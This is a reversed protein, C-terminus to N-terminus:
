WLNTLDDDLVVAGDAILAQNGSAKIGTTLIRKGQASAFRAAHMAGGDTASEVVIVAESLGTILRNRAVLGPAGPAADPAVECVLAGNRALIADAKRRNEPPYPNLIGNGLVAITVGDQVALAGMHAASDIGRALGSIVAGSASAITMGIREALAASKAQPSRTGIVAFAGGPLTRLDPLHGRVFLTPPADALARLLRPYNLDDWTYVKVGARQWHSLRKEVAGLDVAQIASAIKPGIGPVQRLTKADAKLISDLDDDFQALLSKFTKGGLHKCLSLGVWAVDLV